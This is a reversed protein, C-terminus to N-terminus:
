SPPLGRGAVVFDARKDPRTRMYLDVSPLFLRAWDESLVNEGDRAKQAKVLTSRDSEVFLRVDYLDVLAPDLVSCGEIIVPRGDEIYAPDAKVTLTPWDIPRWCCKGLEHLSRVAQRFEDLRFFPFPFAPEIDPPWGDSPLYLDDFELVAWNFRDALSSALSDIEGLAAPRGRRDAEALSGAGSAGGGGRGGFNAYGQESIARGNRVKRGDPIQTM